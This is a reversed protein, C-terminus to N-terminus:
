SERAYAEFEEEGLNLLEEILTHMDCETSFITKRSVMNPNDNSSSSSSSSSALLQSHDIDRLHLQATHISPISHYMFPDNQRLTRLEIENLKSIDIKPAPPKTAPM